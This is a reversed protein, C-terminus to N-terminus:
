GNKKGSIFHWMSQKLSRYFELDRWWWKEAKERKRSQICCGARAIPQSACPKSCFKSSTLKAEMLASEQQKSPKQTDTTVQRPSCKVKTPSSCFCYSRPPPSFGNRPFLWTLLCLSLPMKGKEPTGLWNSFVETLTMMLCVWPGKRNSGIGRQSFRHFSSFWPSRM